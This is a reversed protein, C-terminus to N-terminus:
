VPLSIFAQGLHVNTTGADDHVRNVAYSGGGVVEFEDHKEGTLAAIPVGSFPGELDFVFRTGYERAKLPDLSFGWLPMPLVAGTRRVIRDIQDDEAPVKKRIGRSPSAAGPYRLAEAFHGVDHVGSNAVADLLTRGLELLVADDRAADDYATIFDSDFYHPIGTLVRAAARLPSSGQDQGGQWYRCAELLARPARGARDSCINWGRGPRLRM